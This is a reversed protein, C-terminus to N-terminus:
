EFFTGQTGGFSVFALSPTIASDWSRDFGKLRVLNHLNWGSGGISGSSDTLVSRLNSDGLGELSFTAAGTAVELAEKLVGASPSIWELATPLRVVGGAIPTALAVTLPQQFLLTLAVLARGVRESSQIM